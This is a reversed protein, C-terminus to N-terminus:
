GTLSRIGYTGEARRKWSGVVERSSNMFDGYRVFSSEVDQQVQDAMCSYQRPPFSSPFEPLFASATQVKLRGYDNVTDVPDDDSYVGDEGRYVANSSVLIFQSNNRACCAAIKRSVEVNLRRFVGLHGAVAGVSGQAATHM